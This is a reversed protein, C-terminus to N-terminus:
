YGHELRRLSHVSFAIPIHARILPVAGQGFCPLAQICAQRVVDEDALCGDLFLQMLGDRTLQTQGTACGYSVERM